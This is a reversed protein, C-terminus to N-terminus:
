NDRWAPRKNGKHKWEPKVVNDLGGPRDSPITPIMTARERIEALTLEFKMIPCYDGLLKQLYRIGMKRGRESFYFSMEWCHQEPGGM